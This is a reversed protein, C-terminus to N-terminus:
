VSLILDLHNLFASGTTQVVHLRSRASARPGRWRRRYTSPWRGRNHAPLRRKHRGDNMGRMRSLVGILISKDLFITGPCVKHIAHVQGLPMRWILIPKRGIKELAVEKFTPGEKGNSSNLREMYLPQLNHDLLPNHGLVSSCHHPNKFQNDQLRLSGRM